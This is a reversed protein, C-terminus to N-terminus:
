REVIGHLQAAIMADAIEVPLIPYSGEEIAKRIEAVRDADVPPKAGGVSRATVVGQALDQKAPALPNSAAVDSSATATSSRLPRLNVDSFGTLRM